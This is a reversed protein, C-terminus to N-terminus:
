KTLATGPASVDYYRAHTRLLITLEESKAGAGGTGGWLVTVGGTLGLTVQDPNPVTVSLVTVRLSSPLEALV